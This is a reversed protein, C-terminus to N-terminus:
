VAQYGRFYITTTQWSHNASLNTGITLRIDFADNDNPLLDTSYNGYLSYSTNVYQDFTNLGSILISYEDTGPAATSLNLKMDGEDTSGNTKIETNMSVTGNNWLLFWGGSTEKYSNAQITSFNYTLNNVDIDIDGDPDFTIIISDETAALVYPTFAVLIMTTILLTIIKKIEMKCGMRLVGEYYILTCFMTIYYFNKYSESEFNSSNKSSMPLFFNGM